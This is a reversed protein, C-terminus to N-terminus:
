QCYLDKKIIGASLSNKIQMLLILNEFKLNRQKLIRHPHPTNDSEAGGGWSQGKGAWVSFQWCWGTLLTSLSALSLIDATKYSEEGRQTFATRQTWMKRDLYHPSLSKAHPSPPHWCINHLLVNRKHIMNVWKGWWLPSSIWYPKTILDEDHRTEWNVPSVSALSLYFSAELRPKDDSSHLNNSRLSTLCVTNTINASGRQSSM